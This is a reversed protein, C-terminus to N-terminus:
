FPGLVQIMMRVQHYLYFHGLAKGILQEHKKIWKRMTKRDVSYLAALEKLKYAKIPPLQAEM